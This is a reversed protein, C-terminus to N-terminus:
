MREFTYMHVNGDHKEHMHLLYFGDEGVLKIQHCNLLEIIRRRWASSEKFLAKYNTKRGLPNDAHMLNGCLNYLRSFEERSLFGNTKDVLEMKAPPTQSPIEIMPAPYFDPNIREVFKLIADGNWQKGLKKMSQNMEEMAQRNAVLSSMAILELIKRFQLYICETVVDFGLQGQSIESIRKISDIRQKIESMQDIYEHQM